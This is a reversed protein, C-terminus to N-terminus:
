NKENEFYATMKQLAIARHSIKNKVAPDLSAFSEKFGNPIFLPDYGFGKDGIVHDAIVGECIGEFMEDIDEGYVCIASHFAANRNEKDKLLRLVEKHKLDYSTDHGMFRASYVGLIDPLAEISLGSDDAISICNTKEFLYKAKLRSNGAYTTETEEVLDMDIGLENAPQVEFGLPELIAKFEAIKGKNGSALVIKM